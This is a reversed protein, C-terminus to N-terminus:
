SGGFANPRGAHEYVALTAAATARWSFHAARAPGAARLRERLTANSLVQMMGEALADAAPEVLLAADGVVEPLSSTNSCVVPAGCALAELPPLGFGEYRSPFAFVEAGCYLGPLDAEAIGPLFCIQEGLQAAAQQAEPYRADWHGAIVLRLPAAWAAKLKEFAAVLIPLNKHPKNSSVCLIYPENLGYRARTRAVAEREQPAFRPDAALPTVSMRARAIGYAAALDDRASASIVLIHQSSRAALQTLLDFLLRARLTVEHPFLRPIADYLTTVSPCPLNLFPRVYYPAHFLGAQLERLLRPLERQEALTFPRASTRVLRIAHQELAAIDHRTSALEPNYLAVLEHSTGLQGLAGLLNYVYRGIGPFHDNVYRADIVIRM